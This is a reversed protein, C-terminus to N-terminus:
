LIMLWYKHLASVEILLVLDTSLLGTWLIPFIQAWSWSPLRIFERIQGPHQLLHRVEPIHEAATLCVSCCAIVFVVVAMLPLTTGEKLRNCHHETRFIQLPIAVMLVPLLPLQWRQSCPMMCKQVAYCSQSMCHASSTEADDSGWTAIARYRSM